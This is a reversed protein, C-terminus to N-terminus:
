NRDNHDRSHDGGYSSNTSNKDAPSSSGKRMSWCRMPGSMHCYSWRHGVMGVVVVVVIVVTKTISSLRTAAVVNTFMSVSHSEKCITILLMTQHQWTIFLCQSFTYGRSSIITCRAVSSTQIMSMYCVSMM